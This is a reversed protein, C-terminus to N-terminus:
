NCCLQMVLSGTRNQALRFLKQSEEVVGYAHFNFGKKPRLILNGTTGGGPQTDASIVGPYRASRFDLGYRQHYYQFFFFM